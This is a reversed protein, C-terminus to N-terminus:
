KYSHMGGLFMNVGFYTMLVTGFALIMYIHFFIPKRFWSISDSHFGLGYVLFTILAWVEKPDWAWYRGWSVNAWIAGIFIGAGLLFVAPYLFIKNIIMLREAQNNNKNTCEFFLSAISNFFIFAFLAYSIMILSVHASLWSSLLVPMLPTIQPNMQGLTSVLLTFGSLLLAFAIILNYRKRFILGILMICWSAFIMTEYGNGLPLRESIYTRLVISTTLYTFSLFLLVTFISLVIESARKEKKKRLFVFLLYSICLLGLTLNTRYLITTTNMKNYWLETKVKSDNPIFGEGRQKQYTKIQNIIKSAQEQENNISHEYLLTLINGIFIRDNEEIYDPLKDTPSLWSITENYKYPFINLLNGQELMLILQVREDTEEIAKILSSKKGGKHIDNWFSALLYENKESFFATLPAYEKVKLMKQLEKNKVRILPEFQWKQPYFMWGALVQMSTYDKYTPKGTLKLTFDRAFTELPAVRSNYSVLIEGLEDANQKNLTNTNNAQTAFTTSLFVGILGVKLLPHKLLKRFRGNKSFLLLLMSLGLMIYGTYTIPIGWKDYNVSLITGKEDDDFSSQYFRYGQESLINNMSIRTSFNKNETNVKVYSVYDSPAMTGTYHEVRFSDLALSFPLITGERTKENIYIQSSEGERLHIYGKESNFFTFGAGLLIILFACHIGFASIQKYLKRKVILWFSTISLLVWLLVFWYSSYIVTQVYETGKYKEVFTAVSLCIIVLILIWFSIKKIVTAKVNM